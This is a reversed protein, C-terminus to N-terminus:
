KQWAIKVLDRADRVDNAAVIPGPRGGGDVERARIPRRRQQRHHMLVHLVVYESMRMTLDADVVRVIPITGPLTRDALIADVGAGLSFIVKLNPLGRLVNPPPLWAVAYYVEGPDGMHDPWVRLDLDPALAAMARRWEEAAWTRIVFLLAM